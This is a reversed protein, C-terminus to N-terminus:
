EGVAAMLLGVMKEAKEVSMLAAATRFGMYEAIEKRRSPDTRFEEAMDEGAIAAIAACAGDLLKAENGKIDTITYQM